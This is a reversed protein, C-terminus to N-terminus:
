GACGALLQLIKDYCLKVAQMRKSVACVCVREIPRQGPSAPHAPVLFIFGIQIKSFCSVIYLHSEPVGFNSITLHGHGCEVRPDGTM